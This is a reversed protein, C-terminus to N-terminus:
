PTAAHKKRFEAVQGANSAGLAVLANLITDIKDPDSHHYMEWIDISDADFNQTGVKAFYKVWKGDFSLCFEAPKNQKTMAVTFKLFDNEDFKSFNIKTKETIQKEVSDAAGKLEEPKVAKKLVKVVTSM